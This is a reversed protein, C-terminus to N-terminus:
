NEIPFADPFKLSVTTGQGVTSTLTLQCGIKQAIQQSLYLGLGSARQQLRGNIGTYGKEFVRPLDEPLIGIGTDTIELVGAAFAIQIQGANTYKIANFLVQELIFRLWKADTIVTEDLNGLVLQLDKRAFFVAYKKVTEKVVGSLAVEKFVFDQSDFNSKVYHLMMQLYENIKFLEEKMAPKDVSDTQLLLDMAAVPTKVQHLWLGFDELLTQQQKQNASIVGQRAQIEQELLRLLQNEIATKGTLNVRALSAQSVLLQRYRSRWNFFGGITFIVVATGTFLLLDWFPDFYDYLALTLASVIIFVGYMGYFYRYDRFFLLWNKMM